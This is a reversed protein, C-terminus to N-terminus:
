GLFECMCEWFLVLSISVDVLEYLLVFVIFYKFLSIERVNFFFDLSFILPSILVGSLKRSILCNTMFFNPPGVLSLLTVFVSYFFDFM